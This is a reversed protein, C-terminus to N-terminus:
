GRLNRQWYANFGLNGYTYWTVELNDIAVLPAAAVVGRLTSFDSSESATVRYDTYVGTEGVPSVGVGLFSIRSRRGGASRGVVTLFAPAETAQATVLGPGVEIAPGPLSITTGPASVRTGLINYNTPMFTAIANMIAEVGDIFEETPFGDIGPAAFRFLASHERGNAEYDVWMRGTANVPLPTM